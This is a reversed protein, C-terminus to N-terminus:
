AVRANQLDRAVKGEEFQWSVARRDGGHIVGHRHVQRVGKARGHHPSRLARVQHSKGSARLARSPSDLSRGGSSDIM